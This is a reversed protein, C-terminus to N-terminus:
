DVDEVDVYVPGRLARKWRRELTSLQQSLASARVDGANISAQAASLLSPILEERFSRYDEPEGGYNSGLVNPYLRSMEQYLAMLDAQHIEDNEAYTAELDAAEQARSADFSLPIDARLLLDAFLDVAANVVGDRRGLPHDLDTLGDELASLEPEFRRLLKEWRPARRHVV